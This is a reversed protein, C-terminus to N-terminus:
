RSSPMALSLLKSSIKLKAKRAAPDNIQFRIKNSAKVFNIMGGADTFGETESVTLVSTSQLGKLIEATRQKESSCIFLIHCNTAETPSPLKEIRLPHENILKSRLTRDLDGGFPDDGLIGIVM